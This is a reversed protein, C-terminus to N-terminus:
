ESGCTAWELCIIELMMQIGVTLWRILILGQKELMTVDAGRRALHYAISAGMIGGGAFVVHDQKAKLSVTTILPASLLEIM